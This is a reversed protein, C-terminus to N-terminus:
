IKIKITKKWKEFPRIAMMRKYAGNFITKRVTKLDTTRSQFGLANPAIAPDIKGEKIAGALEAPTPDPLSNSLCGFFDLAITREQYVEDGLKVSALFLDRNKKDKIASSFAEAQAKRQGMFAKMKNKVQTNTDFKVNLAMAYYFRNFLIEGVIRKICKKRSEGNKPVGGLIELYKNFREVTILCSDTGQPSALCDHASGSIALDNPKYFTSFDDRSDDPPGAHGALPFFSFLLVIEFFLLFKNKEV